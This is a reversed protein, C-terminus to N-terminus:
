KFKVGITADYYMYVKIKDNNENKYDEYSIESNNESNNENYKFTLHIEDFYKYQEDDEAKDGFSSHTKYPIDFVEDLIPLEGKVISGLFLDDKEVIEDNKIYEFHILMDKKFIESATEIGAVVMKSVKMYSYYYKLTIIIKKDKEFILQKNM